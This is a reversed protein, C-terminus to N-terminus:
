KQNLFEWLRYFNFKHNESINGFKEGDEQHLLANKTIIFKGYDEKKIRGIAPTIKQIIVNFVPQPVEDVLEIKKVVNIKWMSKSKLVWSRMMYNGKRRKYNELYTNLNDYLLNALESTSIRSVIDDNRLVRENPTFVLRSRKKRKLNYVSEAM